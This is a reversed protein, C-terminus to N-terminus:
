RVVAIQSTSTAEIEPVGGYTDVFGRVCVTHGRYRIEPRGFRWRNENWIVITVRRSSPYDVGLNLFTPSGNSSSAFKTGAVLGKITAYRGVYHRASQWSVAGRCSASSRDGGGRHSVNAQAVGGTTVVLAAFISAVIRRV